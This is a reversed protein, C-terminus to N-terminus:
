ATSKNIKAYVDKLASTFQKVDAEDHLATLSIRLIAKGLPVTPFRAPFVFVGKQFLQKSLQVAKTEDNIELAVIHADGCTNFGNEALHSQMFRSVHALHARKENSNEIMALVDLASAGHAEPLTTSYIMPSSFNLLFQRYQEPLLVMAGFLGMAKGFTGVAIDAVDGAIGRGSKGVAGFSHAEDIITFFNYKEKLRAFGELDIFDGDMSFLAESIVATINSKHKRLRKELHAMDNHNYGYFSANSLQLGKVTSAHVHKDVMLTDGKEFVASLVGLNAQYGSPYFLASEYGFYTAYAKEAETITSYHGSVLRSSSSSSGFKQFNAAVKNKLIRSCGLGLYDNSAFNLLRGYDTLLYKQDRKRIPVPNRFLGAHEQQKLRECIRKGLM